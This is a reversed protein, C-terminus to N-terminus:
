YEGRKKIEAIKNLSSLMMVKYINANVNVVSLTAEIKQLLTYRGMVLGIGSSDMFSVLNFDIELKKPNQATIEFDIKERIAKANHHDIEGILKVNLAQGDKQIDIKM